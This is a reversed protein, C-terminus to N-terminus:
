RRARMAWSSRPAWAPPSRAPLRCGWGRGSKGMEWCGTSRISCASASTSPVKSMKEASPEQTRAMTLLQDLLVRTRLSHLVDMGDKRPDDEVLLARM